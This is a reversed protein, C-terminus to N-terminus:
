RYPGRKRTLMALIATTKLVKERLRITESNKNNKIGSLRSLAATPSFEATYISLDELDTTKLEGRVPIRTSSGPQDSFQKKSIRLQHGAGIFSEGRKTTLRLSNRTEDHLVLLTLEPGDAEICVISGKAIRLKGFGIDYTEDHKQVILPLQPTEVASPVSYSIGRLPPRVEQPTDRTYWDYIDSISKAPERFRFPPRLNVKADYDRTLIGLVGIDRIGGGRGLLELKLDLDKFIQFRESRLAEATRRDISESDLQSEINKVRNYASILVALIEKDTAESADAPPVLIDSIVDAGTRFVATVDTPFITSDSIPVPNSTFGELTPLRDTEKTIPLSTPLSPISLVPPSAIPQSPGALIASLSPAPPTPTTRVPYPPLPSPPCCKQTLLMFHYNSNKTQTIGFEPSLSSSNFIINGSDQPSGGNTGRLAYLAPQYPWDSEDIVLNSAQSLDINGGTSSRYAFSTPNNVFKYGRDAAPIAAEYKIGAVMDLVTGRIVKVNGKVIINKSAYIGLPASAYTNNIDVPYPYAFYPDSFDLNNSIVIDGSDNWYIPDGTICMEGLELVDTSVGISVSEAYTNLIGDVNSLRAAVRGAGSFLNIQKAELSGSEIFLNAASSFSPDRFNIAGLSAKLLGGANDFHVDNLLGSMININGVEATILGGNVFNGSLASLNINNFAQMTPTMSSSSTASNIISQGASISLAGASQIVGANVFDKAAIFSLNLNQVLNTNFASTPSILSSIVGTPQNTINQAAITATQVAANSSVAQIAGANILNGALNLASTTGFDRIATVGEPIVLSNVYRDFKEGMILSGGIANGQLGLAISQHGTSNMQYLALSEAPTLLSGQSITRTSEGLKIDVSGSEPLRTPSLTRETSTLDLDIPTRTRNEQAKVDQTLDPHYAVLLLSILCMARSRLLFM